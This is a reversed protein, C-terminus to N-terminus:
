TNKKKLPFMEILEPLFDNPLYLTDGIKQAKVPLSGRSSMSQISNPSLGCLKSAEWVSILGETSEEPTVSSLMDLTSETLDLRRDWYREFVPTPTDYIDFKRPGEILIKILNNELQDWRPLQFIREAIFTQNRGIFVELTCHDRLVKPVRNMSPTTVVIVSAKVRIAAFTSDIKEYLEADTKFKSSGFNVTLDDWLIAPTREGKPIAQLKDVFDKPHFVLSDLVTNWDQYIWYLSQLAFTSKGAGQAGHVICLEYGQNAAADRLYDALTWGPHVMGYKIAFKVPEPLKSPDFGRPPQEYTSGTL